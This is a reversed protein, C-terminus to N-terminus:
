IPYLINLSAIKIERDILYEVQEEFYKHHFKTKEYIKYAKNDEKDVKKRGKYDSLKFSKEKLKQTKELKASEESWEKLELM